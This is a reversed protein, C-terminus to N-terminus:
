GMQSCFKIYVRGVIGPQEGWTCQVAAAGVALAARFQESVNVM